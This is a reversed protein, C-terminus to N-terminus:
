LAMLQDLTSITHGEEAAKQLLTTVLAALRRPDRREVHMKAQAIRDATTFGIGPAQMLVYPDDQLIQALSPGYQGLLWAQARESVKAEDLMLLAERAPGQAAYQIAIAEAMEETIGRVELLRDPSSLAEMVSELGPGFQRVITRARALGIGPFRQLFALIGEESAEFRGRVAAAVLTWGWQNHEFVGRAEFVSGVSPNFTGKVAFRATPADAHAEELKADVIAFDDKLHKIREVRIVVEVARAAGGCAPCKLTQWRGDVNARAVQDGAKYPEHCNDCNGAFKAPYFKPTTM